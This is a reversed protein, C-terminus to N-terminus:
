TQCRCQSIKFQDYQNKFQNLSSSQRIALPLANWAPPVRVSFFNKRLDLRAPKTELALPDSSLRTQPGSSRAMTNFWTNHDVQSLGKLMKYTEILDGRIRRDHLTTLGLKSLKEEYTGSVNRIQRVLRKQVKELVEIDKVLYPSWACQAYELQPRVFVKYLQILTDKDRCQISRLLMGLVQNGKKAATACQLGSKATEEIMIGLDKESDTAQLQSGSMFYSFRPNQRGIHLIKCKDVNFYMQWKEAWASLNDIISQLQQRDESNKIRKIVKTDDAFKLILAILLIICTDIDNIFIIFLIPGLVSGQPVSCCVNIVDSQKGNLVVSQKRGSLWAEIWSLLSGNIGLAKMKAILRRHQVKDIAKAFDLYLVDVSDGEDLIKTVAEMCHLLNTLCSKKAMFGHQSNIILNNSLLHSMVNTKIISELIKSITSTLSIPRYNKVLKKNGGKHVPTVNAVRWDLPVVSSQLSKKFIITLPTALEECAEVLVVNEIGDPGPASFRKLNKLKEKVIKDTVVVTQLTPGDWQNCHPTEALEEEFVSAYYNNLMQAQLGDDTIIKGDNDQLPGVGTRNSRKGGIYSYFAKPNAKSNKAIEKEYSLKSKLIQKKLKQRLNKFKNLSDPTNNSKYVRWQKRKQKLLNLLNKTMWPPGNNKNQRSNRLPSCCQVVDYYKEKFKNWCGNVDENEFEDHWRVERFMACLKKFDAKRHNFRPTNGIHVKLIFSTEIMLMSHDSTALPGEDKVENIMGEEAFVLDLINGSQHTPFDVYQSWFMDLSTDILNRSEACGTLTGWNAHPYNFDGVVVAPNKVGRLVELLKENNASNSNPSRYIVYLHLSSSPSAIQVSCFQNFDNQCTTEVSQLKESVYVM